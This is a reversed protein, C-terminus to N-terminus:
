RSRARGALLPTQVSSSSRAEGVEAVVGAKFVLVGLHQRRSRYGYRNIVLGKIVSNSSAPGLELGNTYISADSGDLEIKLVANDGQALTNPSAGPQSYGNITVPEFVTPLEQTPKLTRVENGPVNPDNRIDFNITDATPGNDNANTEQIAARLSCLGFVVNCSGNGPVGDPGDGTHNVTFTKAHAPKAVLLSVAVVALTTLLLALAPARGGVVAQTRTRVM